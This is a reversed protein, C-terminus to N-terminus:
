TKDKVETHDSFFKKNTWCVTTLHGLRRRIGLKEAFTLESKVLSQKDFRAHMNIYQLRTSPLM